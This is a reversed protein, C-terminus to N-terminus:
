NKEIDKLKSMEITRESIQSRPDAFNHTGKALPDLAAATVAPVPADCPASSYSAPLPAFNNDDLHEAWRAGLPLCRPVDEIMFDLKSDNCM